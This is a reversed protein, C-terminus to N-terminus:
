PLSFLKPLVPGAYQAVLFGTLLALLTLFVVWWSSQGRKQQKSGHKLERLRGLTLVVLKSMRQLRETDQKEFAHARSSLIEFIGVLKGDKILPVVSISRVGIARTVAGDVRPAPKL